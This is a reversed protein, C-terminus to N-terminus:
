GSLDFSGGGQMIAKKNGLYAMVGLNRYKFEKSALDGKNLRKGLWSAKQNAVQATAPLPADDIVAVDGIAFVDELVTEIQKDQDDKSKVKVQLKNNTVMGHTKPDKKISWAEITSPLTAREDAAFASLPLSRSKGLANEVFPNMMLGTSWVCLGIGIEGDEKTKM